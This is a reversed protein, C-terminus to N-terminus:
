LNTPAELFLFNAFIDDSRCYCCSWMYTGLLFSNDCAAQSSSNRFFHMGRSMNKLSEFIPEVTAAYYCQSFQVAAQETTM